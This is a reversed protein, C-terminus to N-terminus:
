PRTAQANELTQAGLGVVVEEEECLRREVRRLVAFVRGLDHKLREVHGAQVNGDLGDQREGGRPRRAVDGLAREGAGDDVRAVADRVDNWNSFAVDDARRDLANRAPRSM